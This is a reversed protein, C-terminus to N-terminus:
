QAPKGRFHAAALRLAFILEPLTCRSYDVQMESSRRSGPCPAVDSCAWGRSDKAEGKASLVCVDDRGPDLGAGMVLSEEDILGFRETIRSDSVDDRETKKFYLATRRFVARNLERPNHVDIMFMCVAKSSLQTAGPQLLAAGASDEKFCRSHPARSFLPAVFCGAAWGGYVPNIDAVPPTQSWGTSGSPPNKPATENFPPDKAERVIHIILM